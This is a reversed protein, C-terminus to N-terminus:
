KRNEQWMRKSTIKVRGANVANRLARLEMRRGAFKARYIGKKRDIAMEVARAEERRLLTIREEIYALLDKKELLKDLIM